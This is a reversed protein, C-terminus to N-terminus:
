PGAVIRALHKRVKSQYIQNLHPTRSHYNGVGRWLDGVRNIEFRLRYAAVHLNTCPDNVLQNETIGYKRLEPLHITNIQARGMDFSGNTNRKRLGDWGGETKIVAQFLSVPLNYRAAASSVCADAPVTSRTSVAGMQRAIAELAADSDNASAPNGAKPAGSSAEMLDRQILYTAITVNLCDDDALAKATIGNQRELAPVERAPIAALGIVVDGNPLVKIEGSRGARQKLVGLVRSGDARYHAAAKAVCAAIDPQAFDGMTHALDFPLRYSLRSTAFGMVGVPGWIQGTLANPM